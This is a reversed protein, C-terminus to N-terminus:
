GGVDITHLDLDGAAMNIEILLGPGTGSLRYDDGSKEWGPSANVNVLGGSFIVHTPTGTPLTILVHSFGSEINIIADRRLEGTFDLTFDGAGGRFTMSKFNANSLGSLQVNSAGTVYRFTEMEVLNPKSFDMQVNSAGDNIALSTLALGGLEYIGRYAGANIELDMPMRSIKLDWENKVDDKFNPIGNIELDGTRLRITGQDEEIKPELDKLNYQASGSILANTEGPSIKLVGAGFLLGVKAKDIDPKQIQIEKTQVEGTTMEDVPLNFTVSCAISLFVMLALILYVREKFM